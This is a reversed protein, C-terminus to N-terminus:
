IKQNRHPAESIFINIRGVDKILNKVLGRTHYIGFVIIGIKQNFKKISDLMKRAAFEERFRHLHSMKGYIGVLDESLRQGRDEVVSECTYSEFLYQYKRRLELEKDKIIKESFPVAGYLNNLLMHINSLEVAVTRFSIDILMKINKVKDKYKKNLDDVISPAFIIQELCESVKENIIRSSLQEPKEKILISLACEFFRNIYNRPINLKGVIQNTFELFCTYKIYLNVLLLELVQFQANPEELGVVDYNRDKM